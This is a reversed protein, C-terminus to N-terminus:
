SARATEGCFDRKAALLKEASLTPGHWGGFEFALLKRHRHVLDVRAKLAESEHNELHYNIQIYREAASAIGDAAFILLSVVKQHIALEEPTPERAILCKKELKRLAAM